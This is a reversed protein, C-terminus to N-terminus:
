ADKNAEKDEITIDITITQGDNEGVIKMCNRYFNMDADVVTAYDAMFELMKKFAFYKEM